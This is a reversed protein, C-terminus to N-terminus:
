KNNRREIERVYPEYASFGNESKKHPLHAIISLSKSKIM